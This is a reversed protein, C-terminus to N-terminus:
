WRLVTLESALYDEGKLNEPLDSDFVVIKHVSAMAETFRKWDSAIDSVKSRSSCLGSMDHIDYTRRNFRGLLGSNGNFWISDSDKKVWVSQMAEFAEDTAAVIWNKHFLIQLIQDRHGRCYHTPKKGYQQPKHCPHSSNLGNQIIIKNALQTNLWGEGSPYARFPCSACNTQMVSWGALSMKKGEIM